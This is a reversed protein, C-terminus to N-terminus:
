KFEMKALGDRPKWQGFKPGKGDAVAKQYCEKRHGAIVKVPRWNNIDEFLTVYGTWMEADKGCHVCKPTKMEQDPPPSIANDQNFLKRIHGGNEYFALKKKAEALDKDLKDKKDQLEKIEALLKANDESRKTNSSVRNDLFTLSAVVAILGVGLVSICLKSAGSMIGDKTQNEHNAM